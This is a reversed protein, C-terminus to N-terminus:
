KRRVSLPLENVNVTLIRDEVKERRAKPDIDTSQVFVSSFLMRSRSKLVAATGALLTLALWLDLVFLIGLINDKIM